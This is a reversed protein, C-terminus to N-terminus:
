AAARPTSDQQALPSKSLSHGPAVLAPTLPNLEGRARTCAALLTAPRQLETRACSRLAKEFLAGPGSLVGAGPAKERSSLAAALPANM